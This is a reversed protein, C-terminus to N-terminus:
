PREREGPENADEIARDAADLDYDHPRGRVRRGKSPRAAEEPEAATETSTHAVSATSSRRTAPNSETARNPARLILFMLLLCIVALTLLFPVTGRARVTDWTSKTTQGPTTTGVSGAPSPGIMLDIQQGARANDLSFQRFPTAGQPAQIPGGSQLTTSVIAQRADSVLAQVKTAPYDLTRSFALGNAGGPLDYSANVDSDGPLIAMRLTLKQGTLDANPILDLRNTTISQANAPLSFLLPFGQAVSGDANLAGVVTRDGANTMQLAELVSYFQPRIENMIIQHSKITFAAPDSAVVPEYIPVETTASTQNNTFRVARSKGPTGASDTIDREAPEYAIGKYQVVVRYVGASSTDLGAFTFSGDAAATTTRSDVAEDSVRFFGPNFYLLTVMLPATPLTAGATKMVVKGTLTGGIPAARLSFSPVALSSVLLFLLIALRAHSQRFSPM